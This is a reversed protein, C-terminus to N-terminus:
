YYQYSESKLLEDYETKKAVNKVVDSLNNLDALIPVLKNVDFTVM